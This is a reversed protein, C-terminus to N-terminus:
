SKQSNAPNESQGIVVIHGTTKRDTFYNGELKSKGVIELFATGYHMPSNERFQAQPINQYSYVLYPRDNIEIIEATVADSKSEDTSFRVKTSMLTQSIEFNTCRTKDDYTSLVNGRYISSLRPHPEFPNFKWLFHEYLVSFIAGGAVSDGVNGWLAGIDDMKIQSNRVFCLVVFIAIVAYTTIEILSKQERSLYSV